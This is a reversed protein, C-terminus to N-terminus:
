GQMDVYGDSLFPVLSQHERARRCIPFWFNFLMNLSSRQYFFCSFFVPSFQLESKPTKNTKLDWELLKSVSEWRSDHTELAECSLIPLGRQPEPAGLDDVARQLPTLSVPRLRGASFFSWSCSFAGAEKKGEVKIDKLLQFAPSQGSYHWSIGTFKM